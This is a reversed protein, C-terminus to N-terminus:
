DICFQTCSHRKQQELERRNAPPSALPSRQSAIEAEWPQFLSHKLKHLRVPGSPGLSPRKGNVAQILVSGAIHALAVADSRVSCGFGVTASDLILTLTLAAAEFEEAREAPGFLFLNLMGRSVVCHSSTICKCSPCSFDVHFVPGSCDSREELSRLVTGCCSLFDQLFASITSMFHPYLDDLHQFFRVAYARWHKPHEHYAQMTAPYVLVGERVVAESQCWIILRGCQDPVEDGDRDEAKATGASYDSLCQTGENEEQVSFQDKPIMHIEQALQLGRSHWCLFQQRPRWCHKKRLDRVVDTGQGIQHIDIFNRFSFEPISAPIRMWYAGCATGTDHISSFMCNFNKATYVQNTRLFLLGQAEM